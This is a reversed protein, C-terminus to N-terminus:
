LQSIATYISSQHRTTTASHKENTMTWEGSARWAIPTEYSYVVYELEGWDEVTQLSIRWDESLMGKSSAFNQARGYLSDRTDFDELVELVARFQTWSGNADLKKSGM